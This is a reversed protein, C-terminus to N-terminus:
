LFYKKFRDEGRRIWEDQVPYGRAKLKYVIDALRTARFLTIAGMSTISNGKQMHQLVQM